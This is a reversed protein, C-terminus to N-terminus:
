QQGAKLVAVAQAVCGVENMWAAQQVESVTSPIIHFVSKVVEDNIKFEYQGGDLVPMNEPAVIKAVNEPWETNAIFNGNDANLGVQAMPGTNKWFVPPKGAPVCQDGGRSIDVVWPEPVWGYQGASDLVSTASRTVGMETTDSENFALLQKLADSIGSSESKGSNLPKSNHPGNIEIIKGSPSMLSVSEGEKLLLDNEVNVSSGPQLDVGNAKYVIWEAAVVNLSVTATLLILARSLNLM